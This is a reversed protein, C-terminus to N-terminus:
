RRAKRKREARLWDARRMFWLAIRDLDEPGLETPGLLLAYIDAREAEIAEAETM